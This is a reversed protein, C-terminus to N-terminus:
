MDCHPAHCAIYILQHIIFYLLVFSYQNGYAQLVRWHHQRKGEEIWHVSMQKSENM